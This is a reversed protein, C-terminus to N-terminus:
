TGLAAASIAYMNATQPPPCPFELPADISASPPYFCPYGFLMEFLILGASFIDVATDYIPTARLLEPAIYGPTGYIGSFPIGVDLRRNYARAAGFDCMKLMTMNHKLLLNPPKLDQHVIGRTHLYDLASLLQQFLTRCHPEDLFTSSPNSFGNDRKKQALLAELTGNEARELIFYHHREDQYTDVLRIIHPHDLCRHIVEERIVSQREVETALIYKPIIKVVVRIQSTMVEGHHVQGYSGTAFSDRILYRGHMALERPTLFSHPGIRGSRVSATSQNRPGMLSSFSSSLSAMEQMHRCTCLFDKQRFCMPCIISSLTNSFSKLEEVTPITTPTTALIRGRRRSEQQLPYTEFMSCARSSRHDIRSRGLLLNPDVAKRTRRSVVIFEQPIRCLVGNILVDTYKPQEPKSHSRRFPISPM